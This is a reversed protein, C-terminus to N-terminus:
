TIHYGLMSYKFLSLVAAQVFETIERDPLVRGDEVSRKLGYLIFMRIIPM